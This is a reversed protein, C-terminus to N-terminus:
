AARADPSRRATLLHIAATLSHLAEDLQSTEHIAHLNQALREQSAVLQGEGEVLRGLTGGLRALEGTVAEMTASCEALSRTRDEWCAELSEHAEQLRGEIRHLSEQHRRSLEELARTWSAMQQQGWLTIHATIRECAAEVVDFAPALPPEIAAFRHGLKSGVHIEVDHLLSHQAREVLHSVFMLVMSLSLSVATTDFAIALGGTVETMSTELQAPSVNAVALTIGMVTGLFGLIPIMWAIVRVLGLQQHVIEADVEALYRLHEELGQGSRSKQVYELGDRLRRGALTETLRRPKLQIRSLIQAASAPPLPGEGTILWEHGLAQRERRIGAWKAALDAMAWFFMAVTAYEIPHGTTYRDILSGGLPGGHVLAYFAVTVVAGLCFPGVVTGSGTRSRAMEVDGHAPLEACVTGGRTKGRDLNM